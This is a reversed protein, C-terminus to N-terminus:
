KKNQLFDIVRKVSKCFHGGERSIYIVERTYQRYKKMEPVSNLPYKLLFKLHSINLSFNRM